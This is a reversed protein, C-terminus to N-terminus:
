WGGLFHVLEPVLMDEIRALIAFIAFPDKAVIHIVRGRQRGVLLPFGVVPPTLNVRIITNVGDEEIGSTGGTRIIASGRCSGDSAVRMAAVTRVTAVVCRDAAM